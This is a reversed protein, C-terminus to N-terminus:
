PRGGCAHDAALAGARARAGSARRSCGRSRRARLSPARSAGACREARRQQGVHGQKQWRAKPPLSDIYGSNRGVLGDLRGQLAKILDPNGSGGARLAALLKEKDGSALQSVDFEEDDDDEDEDAPKAGKKGSDKRNPLASGLGKMDM